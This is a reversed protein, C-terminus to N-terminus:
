PVWTIALGNTLNFTASTCFLASNRYWTQYYRTGGIAPIMGRLSVPLNGAEPYQSAGGVSAKTGLRVAAGGACILGDGLVFGHGTNAAETGQFYLATTSAPLDAATLVLSDDSVSALGSGDLLGGSGFSHACGHGLAGANGCPCALATGLCFSSGLPLASARKYRLVGDTWLVTFDGPVRESAVLVPPTLPADFQDGVEWLHARIPPGFAQPPMTARLVQVLVEVRVPPPVSCACPDLYEVDQRVCAVLNPLGSLGVVDTMSGGFNPSLESLLPGVTVATPAFGASAFRLDEGAPSSEPLAIFLYPLLGIPQVVSVFPLYGAPSYSAFAVPAEIPGNADYRRLSATATTTGSVTYVVGFPGNPLAGVGVGLTQGGAVDQAIEEVLPNGQTDVRLTRPDWAPHAGFSYSILAGADTGEIRMPVVQVSSAVITPPAVVTGNEDFVLLWLDLQNGVWAVYARRANGPGGAGVALNTVYNEPTAQVLFAAFSADDIRLIGSQIRAQADRWAVFISEPAGQVEFAAAVFSGGVAPGTGGDDARAATGGATAILIALSLREFPNWKLGNEGFM